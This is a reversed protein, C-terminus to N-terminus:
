SRTGTADATLGLSRGMAVVTAFNRREFTTAVLSTEANAGGSAGSEEGNVDVNSLKTWGKVSGSKVEVWFGKRELM